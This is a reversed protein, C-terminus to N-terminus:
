VHARGNELDNGIGGDVLKAGTGYFHGIEVTDDGGVTINDWKGM